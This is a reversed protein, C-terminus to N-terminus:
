QQDKNDQLIRIVQQPAAADRINYVMQADLAKDIRLLAERLHALTYPDLMSEQELVKAIKARLDQLRLLALNSIPRAAAGLSPNRLTLDILRELHERQLNRRLSSIWPKRASAAEAPMQELESWVAAGVTDLLEPLTLADQDPPLRTENDLVLRLTEPNILMTLTSAQMGVIRDHVPWTPQAFPDSGEDFWQDVSLHRLLDPTLGFAADQFMNDIVFKLCERQTQAPVVEVPARGNPDGKKDRAVFAGGIWDAMNNVARMQLGLTLEYGRRAKAWSEGPKVFRDLLRARLTRVLEMQKQAYELPNASFDYRRAYPDPGMTDEDTGYRLEPEAVRALVPQLNQDFTYGYEIAWMDYPGIGTMAIDGVLKGDRLEINAPLYDMVSGAFPKGRMEDSNIQSLPYIASAKFNHRLGLTHGVEHATLEALLPGVYEEPMGDLLDGATQLEPAFLELQMRLLAMDFALGSAALCMGNCQSTRGILGDFEDDGLLKPDVTALPHGGYPRHGHERREALLREREVPPALLIRPDWRPNQDLWALMEPSFGEMAAPTVVDTQQMLYHRIWGDTLIIDADLIEGTAPHVRSPGIATSVDNNLWRVFNYRVDEPDKDMHEGTVADQQRVEIADRIGIREFAANWYLIGRKVWPRYRVPTTHEIYFIIPNKPPSHKLSPDRKELRWRNIYRVWTGDESFRGLDNFSTTFYGLRTDALRPQYGSQEPLESISYHLTKLEGGAMPAEFGLEVNHPFAKATRIAALAPNSSQAAPGFFRSAQQILMGGIDIVPGGQPGMTLIPVDLLVQDTFLRRVSSQSEADGTSRTTLQPRILALRRDYQRWYTLVDGAQLGAFREGSAVTLAIFYKKAAFDRPLEALVRNDKRRVYLQYMGPGAPSIVPEFGQTVEQFPPYEGGAQNQAWVAAAWWAGLFVALSTALVRNM